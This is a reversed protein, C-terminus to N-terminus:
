REIRFDVFLFNLNSLDMGDVQIEWIGGPITATECDHDAFGTAPCRDPGAGAVKVIRFQEWERNGSPNRNLFTQGDPAVIRYVIGAQPSGPLGPVRRFAASPSDEAPRGTRTGTGGGCPLGTLAVGEDSAGIGFPPVGLSDPDDTDNNTCDTDGVDMDGDYVAVADAGDPVRFRFSWTGDYPSGSLDPYSPYIAPLDGPVGMAGLFAFAQPPLDLTGPTRIKFANWGLDVDTNVSTIKLVYSYREDPGPPTRAGPDHPLSVRTWDNNAFRIDGAAWTRLLPGSTGSGEPDAYLALELQPAAARTETYIVDWNGPDRDGDFLDFNVSGSDGGATFSLSVVIGAAALTSPDRGTVVLFRGDVACTPFCVYEPEQPPAGAGAAGAPACLAAAALCGAAAGAWEHWRRWAMHTMAM